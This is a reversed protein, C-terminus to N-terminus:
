YSFFPQLFGYNKPKYVYVLIYKGTEYKKNLDYVMSSNEFDNTTMMKLVSVKM